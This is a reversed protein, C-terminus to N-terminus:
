RGEGDNLPYLKGSASRWRRTYELYDYLGPALTMLRVDDEGSFAAGNLPDEYDSPWQAAEWVAYLSAKALARDYSTIKLGAREAAATSAAAAEEIPMSADKAGYFFSASRDRLTGDFFGRYKLRRLELVRRHASVTVKKSLEQAHKLARAAAIWTMRDNNGDALLNRAEEFAAVCSDLYFHSRNEDVQDAESSKNLFLGGFALLLSAPVLVSSVLSFARGLPERAAQPTWIIPLDSHDPVIGGCGCIGM